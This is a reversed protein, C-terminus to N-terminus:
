FSRYSILPMQDRDLVYFSLHNEIRNIGVEKNIIKFKLLFNSCFILWTDLPRGLTCYPMKFVLFTSFLSLIMFIFYLGNGNLWYLANVGVFGLATTAIRGALSFVGMAKGRVLTSYIEASYPYLTKNIHFFLVMFTMTIFIKILLFMGLLLYTQNEQIMILFVSFIAVFGFGIYTSKKRGMDPHDMITKSFYFCLMEVVSIVTLSVYKFNYSTSTNNVLITPLLLLIGYFIFCVSFWAVGLIFTM